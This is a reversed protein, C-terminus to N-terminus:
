KLWAIFLVRIIELLLSYINHSVVGMSFWWIRFRSALASLSALREEL